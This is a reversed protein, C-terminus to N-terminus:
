QLLILLRVRIEDGAPSSSEDFGKESICSWKSCGHSDETLILKFTYRACFVADNSEVRCVGSNAHHREIVSRDVYFHAYKAVGINPIAAYRYRALRESEAAAEHGEGEASPISDCCAEDGGHPSLIVRSIIACRGSVIAEASLISSSVSPLRM